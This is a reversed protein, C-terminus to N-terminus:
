PERARPTTALQEARVAPISGMTPHNPNGETGTRGDQRATCPSRCLLARDGSVHATAPISCAAPPQWGCGLVCVHVQWTQKQHTHISVYGTTQVCMSRGVEQHPCRKRMTSYPHISPHVSPRITPHVFPRISPHVSPHIICYYTHCITAPLASSISPTSEDM